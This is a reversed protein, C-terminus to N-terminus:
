AIRLPLSSFGSAPYVAGVPQKNAVAAIIRTRKLLEEPPLKDNM